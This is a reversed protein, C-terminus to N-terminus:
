NKNTTTTSLINYNRSCVKETIHRASSANQGMDFLDTLQTKTERSVDRFSLTHAAKVPHNHDFTIKLVGCHSLLHPIMEAKRQQNKTPIQIVLTFSTYTYQAHTHTHTSNKNRLQPAKAKKARPLASKEAQKPSLRKAFHQCHKVFKCKVRKACSKVTKTVRYTCKSHNCMEEMWQKAGEETHLNIGITASFHPSDSSPADDIKDYTEVVYTYQEGPPLVYQLSATLENWKLVSFRTKPKLPLM